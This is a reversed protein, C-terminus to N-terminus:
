CSSLKYGFLLSITLFYPELYLLISPFFSFKDLEKFSAVSKSFFYAANSLVYKLTFAECFANPSSM